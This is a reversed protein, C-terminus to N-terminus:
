RPPTTPPPYNYTYHPPTPPPNYVIYRVPMPTPKPPYIYRNTPPNYPNANNYQPIPMPTPEPTNIHTIPNHYRIPMLSPPNPPTPPAQYRITPVPTQAAPQQQQQPRQPSPSINNNYNVVPTSCTCDTQVTSPVPCEPPPYCGCQCGGLFNWNADWQADQRTQGAIPCTKLMCGKGTQANILTFLEMISVMTLWIRHSAM